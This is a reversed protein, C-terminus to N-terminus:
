KKLPRIHWINGDEEDTLVYLTGDAAQEVDRIRGGLPIREVASASDKQIEM